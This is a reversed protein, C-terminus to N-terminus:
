HMEPSATSFNRTLCNSEDNRSTVAYKPRAAAPNMVTFRSNPNSTDTWYLGMLGHGRLRM